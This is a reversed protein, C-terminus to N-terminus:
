RPEIHRPAIITQDYPFIGRKRGNLDYHQEILVAKARGFVEDFTKEASARTTHSQRIANIILNVAVDVVQEPTFGDGAVQSFRRMLERAGHAGTKLLPDKPNQNM